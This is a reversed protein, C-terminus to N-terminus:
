RVRKSMRQNERARREQQIKSDRKNDRQVKGRREQGRDQQRKSDTQLRARREQERDQASEKQM